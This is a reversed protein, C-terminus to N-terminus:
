HVAWEREDLWVGRRSGPWHTDVALYLFPLEGHERAHARLTRSWTSFPHAAFAVVCDASRTPLAVPISLVMTIAGMIKSTGAEVAPRGRSPM